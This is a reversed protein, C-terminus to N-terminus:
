AKTKTSRKTKKRAKKTTTKPPSKAVGEGYEVDIIAQHYGRIFNEEAIPMVFEPFETAVVELIMEITVNGDEPNTKSGVYNVLWTKIETDKEVQEKLTPNEGLDSNTFDIKM